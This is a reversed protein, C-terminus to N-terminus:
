DEQRDIVFDMFGNDDWMIKMIKYRNDNYSVIVGEKINSNTDCFVRYQCELDYGYQKSLLGKNYDQVDALITALITEKGEIYVGYDNTTGSAQTLISIQKKYFMKIM